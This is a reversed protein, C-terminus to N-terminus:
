VLTFLYCSILAGVIIMRPSSIWLRRYIYRLELSLLFGSAAAIVIVTLYGALNESKHEYLLTGLYQSVLYGLWGGVQLTWFLASRNKLLLDLRLSM